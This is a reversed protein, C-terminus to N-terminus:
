EVLVPAELEVRRFWVAGAPTAPTGDPQWALEDTFSRQYSLWYVARLRHWGPTDIRLSAPLVRRAPRLVGPDLEHAWLTKAQRGATAPQDDVAYGAFFVGLVNDANLARRVELSVDIAEGTKARKPARLSAVFGETYFQEIMAAPMAGAKAAAEFWKGPSRDHSVRRRFSIVRNGMAETSRPSLTRLALEDWALYGSRPSAYLVTYLIPTPLHPALTPLYFVPNMVVAGFLALAVGLAVLRPSSVRRGRQLRGFWATGCEPCRLPPMSAERADPSPGHNYEYECAPCHLSEGVRRAWGAGALTMGGMAVIIWMPFVDAFQTGALMIWMAISFASMGLVSVGAHVWPLREPRIRRSLALLRAYVWVVLGMLVATLLVRLALITWPVSGIGVIVGVIIGTTTIGGTLLAFARVSLRPPQLFPTSM